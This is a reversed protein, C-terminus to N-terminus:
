GCCPIRRLESVVKFHILLYREPPQVQKQHWGTIFFMRKFSFGESSSRRMMLLFIQRFGYWHISEPVESEDTDKGIPTDLLHYIVWEFYQVWFDGSDRVISREKWKRVGCCWIGRIMSLSYTLLPNFFSFGESIKDDRIEQPIFFWWMEDM